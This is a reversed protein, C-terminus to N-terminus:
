ETLLGFEGRQVFFLIRKKTAKMTHASSLVGISYHDTQVSFGALHSMIQPCISLLIHQNEHPFKHTSSLNSVRRTALCVVLSLSLSYSFSQATEEGAGSVCACLSVRVCLCVCVCVCVCM